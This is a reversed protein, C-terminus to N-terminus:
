FGYLLGFIRSSPQCPVGGSVGEFFAIGTGRMSSLVGAKDVREGALCLAIHGCGLMTTRNQVFLFPRVKWARGGKQECCSGDSVPSREERRRLQLAGM